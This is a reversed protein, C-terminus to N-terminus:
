YTLTTNGHEELIDDPSLPLIFHSKKQKVVGERHRFLEIM